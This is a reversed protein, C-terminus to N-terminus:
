CQIKSSQKSVAPLLLHAYVYSAIYHDWLSRWLWQELGTANRDGFRHTGGGKSEWRQLCFSADSLLQLVVYKLLLTRVRENGHFINEIFHNLTITFVRCLYPIKDRTETTLSLREDEAGNDIATATTVTFRNKWQGHGDPEMGLTHFFSMLFKILFASTPQLNPAGLDFLELGREVSLFSNHLGADTLGCTWLCETAAAAAHDAPDFATADSLVQRWGREMMADLASACFTSQATPLEAFVTHMNVGPTLLRVLFQAPEQEAPTLIVQTTSSSLSRALQRMFAFRGTQPHFNKVISKGVFTDVLKSVSGIDDDGNDGTTLAAEAAAASARHISPLQLLARAQEQVLQYHGERESPLTLRRLDAIVATIEELLKVLLPALSSEDHFVAHLNHPNDNQLQGSTLVDAGNVADEGGIWEQALTVKWNNQAQQAILTASFDQIFDLGNSLSLSHASASGDDDNNSAVPSDDVIVRYMSLPVGIEVSAASTCWTITGCCNPTPLIRISRQKSSNDSRPHPLKSLKYLDSNSLVADSMASDRRIKTRNNSSSGGSPADGASLSPSAAFGTKPLSSLLGLRNNSVRTRLRCWLEQGRDRLHFPSIYVMSFTPIRRAMHAAAQPAIGQRQQLESALTVLSFIEQADKHGGHKMVLPGLTPHRGGFVATGSGGGHLLRVSSLSAPAHCHPHVDPFHRDPVAEIRITPQQEETSDFSTTQLRLLIGHGEPVEWPEFWNSSDASM